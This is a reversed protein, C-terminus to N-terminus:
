SQPFNSFYRLHDRLLTNPRPLIGWNRNGILYHSKKRLKGLGELRVIARPHVWRGVSILVLIWGPPEFDTPTYPQCGQWWRHASQRSFTPVEVDSVGTPKWPSNCPYSCEKGKISWLIVKIKYKTRRWQGKRNQKGEEENITKHKL